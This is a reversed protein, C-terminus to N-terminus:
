GGEDFGIGFREDAGCPKQVIRNQEKRFQDRVNCNHNQGLSCRKYRVLIIPDGRSERPTPSRAASSIPDTTRCGAGHSNQKASYLRLSTAFDCAESALGRSEEERTMSTTQGEMRM